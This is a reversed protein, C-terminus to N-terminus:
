LRNIIKGFELRVREAAFYTSAVSIANISYEIRNSLIVALARVAETIDYVIINGAKLRIVHPTDAEKSVLIPTGCSLAEVAALMTEECIVPFAVFVDAATYYRWRESYVDSVVIVLENLRNNQIIKNILDLEGFDNGVILLVSNSNIKQYQIFVDIVRSIGKAWFLRGLFLLITVDDNFGLELKAASKCFLQKNEISPQNKHTYHLNLRQIKALVNIKKDVLLSACVSREHENQVLYCDVQGLILKLFLRDYISRIFSKKYHLQGFASFIIRSKRPFLLKIFVLYLPIVGRLEWFHLVTKNKQCIVKFILIFIVWPAMAAFGIKAFSRGFVTVRRTIYGNSNYKCASYKKKNGDINGSILNVDYDTSAWIAYEDFLRVPGGYGWAPAAFTALQVYGIKSQKKQKNLFSFM